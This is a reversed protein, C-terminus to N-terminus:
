PNAHTKFISDDTLRYDWWIVDNNNPFYGMAGVQALIGNVYYLWYKKEKSDPVAPVGNIQTVFGGGFATEIRTNKKLIDMVSDHTELSVKKELIIEKGFDQSIKLTVAKEEAFANLSLGCLILLIYFIKSKNM